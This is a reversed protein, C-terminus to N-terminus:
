DVVNQSHTLPFQIIFDLFSQIGILILGFPNWLNNWVSLTTGIILLLLKFNLIRETDSHGVYDSVTEFLMGLVRWWILSTQIDFFTENWCGGTLFLVRIVELILIHIEEGITEDTVHKQTLRVLQQPCNLLVNVLPTKWGLLYPVAWIVNFLYSTKTITWAWIALPILSLLMKEETSFIRLINIM